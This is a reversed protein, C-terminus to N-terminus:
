IVENHVAAALMAATRDTEAIIGLHQICGDMHRRLVAFNPRAIECRVNFVLSTVPENPHREQSIALNYEPLAVQRLPKYILMFVSSLCPFM